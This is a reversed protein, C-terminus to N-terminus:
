VIVYTFRRLLIHCMKSRWWRCSMRLLNRYMRLLLSMMMMMMMMKLRDLLLEVDEVDLLPPARFQDALWKRYSDTPAVRGTHLHFDDVDGRRVRTTAADVEDRDYQRPAITGYTGRTRVLFFFWITLRGSKEFFFWCIILNKLFGSLFESKNGYKKFYGFFIYEFISLRNSKELFGFFILM